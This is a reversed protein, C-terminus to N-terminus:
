SGAPSVSATSVPPEVASDLATSRTAQYLGRLVRLSDRELDALIMEAKEHFYNHAVLAPIAVLLGTATTILAQSIGGSLQEAQGAGAEAITRFVEIMGLVTGLLGMLPSVAAVTGLAVLYRTLRPAEHRGADEVAEKALTEGRDAIELGALVINSFLGPNEHCIEIARDARGSEALASVREVIAPNLIRNARLNILREVIIALALLSCVGLLYMVPGGSKFAELLSM